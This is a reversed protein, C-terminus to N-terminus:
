LTLKFGPNIGAYPLPFRLVTPCQHLTWKHSLFGYVSRCVSIQELKSVRGQSCSFPGSFYDKLLGSIVTYVPILWLDIAEETWDWQCLIKSCVIELCIEHRDSWGWKVSLPTWLGPYLIIYMLAQNFWSQVSQIMVLVDPHRRWWKSFCFSRYLTLVGM